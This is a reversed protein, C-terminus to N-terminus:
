TYPPALPIDLRKKIINTVCVAHRVINGGSKFGEAKARRSRRVCDSLQGAVPIRGAPSECPRM